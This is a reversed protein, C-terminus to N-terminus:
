VKSIKRTGNIYDQDEEQNLPPSELLQGVYQEGLRSVKKSAKIRQKLEVPVYYEEDQGKPIVTQDGYWNTAIKDGKLCQISGFMTLVEGDADAEMMSTYLYKKHAYYM